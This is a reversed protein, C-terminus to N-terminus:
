VYQGCEVCQSGMHDARDNEGWATKSDAPEHLCTRVRSKEHSRFLDACVKGCFPHATTAEDNDDLIYIVPINM